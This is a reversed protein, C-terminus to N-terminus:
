LDVGLNGQQKRKGNRGKVVKNWGRAGHWITHVATRISQTFSNSCRRRCCCSKFDRSFFKWRYYVQFFRNKLLIMESVNRAAAFTLRFFFFNKWKGQACRSWSAVSVIASVFKKDCEIYWSYKILLEANPSMLTRVHQLGFPSTTLSIINSTSFPAVSSSLSLFFQVWSISM